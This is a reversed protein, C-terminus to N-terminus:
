QHVETEAHQEEDMLDFLTMQVPEKRRWEALRVGPTDALSKLVMRGPHAARLISIAMNRQRRNSAHLDYDSEPQWYGQDGSAILFGADRAQNVWARLTRANVGFQAALVNMHVAHDRGVPIRSLLVAHEGESRIRRM